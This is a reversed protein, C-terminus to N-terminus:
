TTPPTGGLRRQLAPTRPTRPRANPPAGDSSEPPGLIAPSSRFCPDVSEALQLSLMLREPRLPEAPAPVNRDM